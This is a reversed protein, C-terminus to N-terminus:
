RAVLVPTETTLSLIKETVSGLLLLSARSHGKAGMVILDFRNKRAYEMVLEGTGGQKQELIEIRVTSLRDEPVASRIFSQFAGARDKLLMERIEEGTKRILYSPFSPMEYVNLVTIMPMPKFRQQWDLAKKLASVSNPSFDVPVLMRKMRNPARDPVFLADSSLKRILNKALIGHRATGTSKGLVVLGARPSRAALLLEELPDGDRVEMKTELGPSQPLLKVLSEALESAIKEDREYKDFASLDMNGKRDFSYIGPIVHLCRLIRINLYEALFGVYSLLREDSESLSIGLLLHSFFPPSLKTKRGSSGSKISKTM